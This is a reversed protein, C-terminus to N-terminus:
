EGCTNLLIRFNVCTSLVIVHWSTLNDVLRRLYGCRTTDIWIARMKERINQLFFQHRSPIRPLGCFFFSKKPRLAPRLANHSQPKLLPRIATDTLGGRRVVIPACGDIKLRRVTPFAVSASLSAHPFIFSSYPCRGPLKVSAGSRLLAVFTKFWKFSGHLKGALRLVAAFGEDTTM